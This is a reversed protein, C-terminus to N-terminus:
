ENKGLVVGLPTMIKNLLINRVECKKCMDCFCSDCECDQSVDENEDLECSCFWNPCRKTHCVCFRKKFKRLTEYNLQPEECDRCLGTCRDSRAKTEKPKQNMFWGFSPFRDKKKQIFELKQRKKSSDSFKSLKEEMLRCDKQLAETVEQRYMEEFFAYAEKDTLTQYIAPITENGDKLAAKPRSHKGPEIVTCNTRWCKEAQEKVSEPFYESRKRKRPKLDQSEGSRLMTKLDKGEQKVARTEEIKPYGFRPDYIASTIIRRQENAEPTGAERLLKLTENVNKLIRKESRESNPLNEIKKKFTESETIYSPIQTFINLVEQSSMGDLESNIYSSIYEEKRAKYRRSTLVFKSLTSEKAILEEIPAGM